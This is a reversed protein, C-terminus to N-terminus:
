ELCGCVLCRESSCCSTHASIKANFCMGVATTLFTSADTCILMMNAVANLQCVPMFYAHGTDLHCFASHLDMLWM